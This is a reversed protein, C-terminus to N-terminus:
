EEELIKSNNAHMVVSIQRRRMSTSKLFGKNDNDTVTGSAVDAAALLVTVLYILLGNGRHFLILHLSAGWLISMWGGIGGVMEEWSMKETQLLQDVKM